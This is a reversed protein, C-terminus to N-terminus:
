FIKKNKKIQKQLFAKQSKSHLDKKKLFNRMATDKVSVGCLEKVRVIAEAITQPPQENFKEVIQETYPELIAERKKYNTTYIYNIGISNFKKVHSLITTVSLNTMEKIQSESYGKARFYIASAKERIKRNNNKRERNLIELEENSVIMEIKDM